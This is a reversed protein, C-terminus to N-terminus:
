DGSSAGLGRRLDATGADIRKMADRVGPADGYGLAVAALM